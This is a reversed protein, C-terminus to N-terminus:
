VVSKRDICNGGPADAVQTWYVNSVSANFYDALQQSSWTNDMEWVTEGSAYHGQPVKGSNGRQNQSNLGTASFKGTYSGSMTLTGTSIITGGTLGNGTAVSTVGSVTSSPAYFGDTVGTRFQAPTVYRLYADNSATIRTISGTHNGSISNIWGFNAYGNGETRVIPNAVNYTGTSNIAFNNFTAATINGSLTIDGTITQGSLFKIAM